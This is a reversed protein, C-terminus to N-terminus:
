LGTSITPLELSIGLDEEVFASLSEVTVAVLQYDSVEEGCPFELNNKDVLLSFLPDANGFHPIPLFLDLDLTQNHRLNHFPM